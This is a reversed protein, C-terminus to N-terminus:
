ILATVLDFCRDKLTCILGDKLVAPLKGPRQQFLHIFYIIEDVKVVLRASSYSFQQSGVDSIVRLDCDSLRQQIEQNM